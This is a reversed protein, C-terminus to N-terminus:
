ATRTPMEEKEHAHPEERSDGRRIHDLQRRRSTAWPASSRRRATSTREPGHRLRGFAWLAIGTLSVAGLLATSTIGTSSDKATHATPAPQERHPRDPGPEPVPRAEPIGFVPLLRSHGNRLATPPLLSLPNLYTSGRRLGWHLCPARCHYPGGELVGVPQGATVHQGEHSTARVPEYTTRLPPHGSRSVEITLVGRGAVTGAFAVQGPTAAKVISGDSAALDVGRHGAAWPTPPPEWGHLVAPRTGTPGDVPWSRESAPAAPGTARAVGVYPTSAEAMSAAGIAGVTPVASLACMALVPLSYRKGRRTRAVSPTREPVTRNPAPGDTPSAPPEHRRGPPHRPGARQVDPRRAVPGTWQGRRM